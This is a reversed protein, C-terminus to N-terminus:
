SIIITNNNYCSDFLYLVVYSAENTDIQYHAKDTYLISCSGEQPLQVQLMDNMQQEFWIQHQMVVSCVITLESGFESM